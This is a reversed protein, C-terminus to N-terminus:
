WGSEAAAALVCGAARAANAAEQGPSWDLSVRQRDASTPAAGVGVCTWGTLFGPGPSVLVVVAPPGDLSAAGRASLIGRACAEPQAGTASCAEFDAATFAPDARRFLGGGDEPAVRALTEEAFDTMGSGAVLVAVEPAPLDAAASPHAGSVVLSALAAVLHKM